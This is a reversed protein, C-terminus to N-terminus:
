YRCVGEQGIVHRWEMQLYAQSNVLGLHRSYVNEAIFAGGGAAGHGKGEYGASMQIASGPSLQTIGFVTLNTHPDTDNSNIPDMPIRMSRANDTSFDQLTPVGALNTPIDGATQDYAFRLDAVEIGQYRLFTNPDNNTIVGSFGTPCSLNEETMLIAAETGGDAKYFSMNAVKDNGSIQMEVIATRTAAIGILTLVVLLSLSVVLVFGEENGLVAKKDRKTVIPILNSM